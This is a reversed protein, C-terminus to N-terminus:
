PHLHVTAIAYSALLELTEPPEARETVKLVTNSIVIASINECPTPNFRERLQDQTCTERLVCCVTRAQVMM